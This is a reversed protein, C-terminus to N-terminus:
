DQLDDSPKIIQNRVVVDRLARAAPVGSECNEFRARLAEAEKKRTEAADAGAGRGIGVLIPRLVYEYGTPTAKPEDEGPKADKDSQMAQLVDKENVHLRSQFKGQVVTTWSIEAKIHDKMISPDIGAQILVNEFAQKSMRMRGGMEVFQKDVDDSTIDLHFRRGVSIKIKDDILDNIVEQRPATKHLTLQILKARQAIDLETIPAGNVFLVVQGRAPAVAAPLAFRAAPLLWTRALRARAAVEGNNCRHQMSRKGLFGAGGSDVLSPKSMMASWLRDRRRRHDAPRITALDNSKDERKWQVHLGNRLESVDHFLRRYLRTRFPDPRVYQRYPRVPDGGDCGLKCQAQGVLHHARGRASGFIRDGAPGRLQWLSGFAVM